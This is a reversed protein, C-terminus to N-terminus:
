GGDTGTRADAGVRSIKGAGRQAAEILASFDRHFLNQVADMVQPLSGPGKRMAWIVSLSKELGQVHAGHAQRSLEIRFSGEVATVVNKAIGAIPSLVAGQEQELRARSLVDFLSLVLVALAMKTSRESFVDIDHTEKALSRLTTKEIHEILTDQGNTPGKAVDRFIRPAAGLSEPFGFAEILGRVIKLFSPQSRLVERWSSITSQDTPPSVAEDLGPAPSPHIIRDLRTRLDAIGKAFAAPDSTELFLKVYGPLLDALIERKRGQLQKRHSIAREIAREGYDRAVATVLDTRIQQAGKEAGAESWTKIWATQKQNRTDELLVAPNGPLYSALAKQVEAWVREVTSERAIKAKGKSLMQRTQQELEQYKALLGAMDESAVDPGIGTQMLTRGWSAFKGAYKEFVRDYLALLPSPSTETGTSRGHEDIIRRVVRQGDTPNPDGSGGMDVLVKLLGLRTVVEDLPVQNWASILDEARTKSLIDSPLKAKVQKWTTYIRKPLHGHTVKSNAGCFEAPLLLPSVAATVLLFGHRLM